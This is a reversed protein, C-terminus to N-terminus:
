VHDIKKFRELVPNNHWTDQDQNGTFFYETGREIGRLREPDNSYLFKFDKFEVTGNVLSLKFKEKRLRGTKIVFDKFEQLNRAIVIITKM